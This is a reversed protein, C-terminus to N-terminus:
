VETKQGNSLIKYHSKIDDNPIIAGRIEKGSNKNWTVDWPTDTEHTMSSLQLGSLHSYANWVSDLLEIDDEDTVQPTIIEFGREDKQILEICLRTIQSNKYDKFEHYVKPIVPGYQWAEVGENILIKESLALSWGHAIYVMKILKMPTLEIGTALSKEVFFNAVALSSLPMRM